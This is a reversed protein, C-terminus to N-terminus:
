DGHRGARASLLRLAIVLPVVAFFAFGWSYSGTLSVLAAFAPPGLLAGGFTFFQTGGTATGAQGAPAVRAVEALYVGNWGVASAGYLMAVATIAGLPWADSFVATLVGCAASLIGLAALMAGAGLWRDAIAGWTIRGVVGSGHALAYVFGATVLSHGLRLNLYSVFYTIFVIQVSAYGLSALALDRLKPRSVVLRVPVAMGDVVRRLRFGLLAHPAARDQVASPPDAVAGRVPVLVFAAAMCLAGLAPLANPWTLALVLSPVIAGAAAGGLPVGTQKISFVLAMARPPTRRALIHSSVPNVLGYGAGILLAALLVLGLAQFYGLALGLGALVLAGQCVASAGFRAILGSVALGSFMAGLYTLSTFLGISQPAVGLDRAAVPAMVSPSIMAMATLAQVFLTVTLAVLVPNM